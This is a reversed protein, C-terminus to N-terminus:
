ENYVGIRDIISKNYEEDDCININTDNFEATHKNIILEKEKSKRLFWEYESDIHGIDLVWYGEITLDFTLPKSTPGLAILVLINESNFHKLFQLSREKITDYYDYANNSPCIIRYINKSKKLLDNGVGTRTYEGEIILLTKNNWIHKLQKFTLDALSKDKYAMYPRSIFANGYIKHNNIISYYKKDKAIRYTWYWKSKRTLNCRSSIPEAICVLINDYNSSLIDFLQKKLNNNLQQFVIPKNNLYYFEGDGFRIVSCKYKDIYRITEEISMINVKIPNFYLIISGYIYKLFALLSRFIMM